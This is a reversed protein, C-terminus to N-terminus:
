GEVRAPLFRTNAPLWHTHWSQPEYFEWSPGDDDTYTSPNWCWCRGPMGEGRDDCDEPGPKRDSFPIPQVPDDADENVREGVAQAAWTLMGADTPQNADAAQCAQEALWAILPGLEEMSPGSLAARARDVVASMGALDQHTVADWEDVLEACLARYDTTM